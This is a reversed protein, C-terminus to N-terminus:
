FLGREYVYVVDNPQLYLIKSPDRVEKLEKLKFTENPKGQRILEIRNPNGLRAIGGAESLAQMITMPQDPPLTILKPLNVFGQVSIQQTKFEKIAIIVHPDVLFDRELLDRIYREAQAASKGSVRVQKLLPYTIEGTSAVKLEKSLDPELFVEINIIDGPQIKYDTTNGEYDRSNIVKAPKGVDSTSEEELSAILDMIEQDSLSVPSSSSDKMNSPIEPQTEVSTKTPNPNTVPLAIASTKDSPILTTTKPTSDASIAEDGVVKGSVQLIAQRTASGFTTGDDPDEILFGGTRSPTSVNKSPETALLANTSVSPTRRVPASSARSGDPFFGLGSDDLSTLRTTTSTRANTSVLSSVSSGSVLTSRDTTNTSINTIRVISNTQSTNPVTKPTEVLGLKESDRREYTKANRKRLSDFLSAGPNTYPSQGQSSTFATLLVFLTLIKLSLKMKLLLFDIVLSSNWVLETSGM